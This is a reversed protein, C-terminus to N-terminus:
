KQAPIYAIGFRAQLKDTRRPWDVLLDKKIEVNPFREILDPYYSQMKVNRGDSADRSKQWIVLAGYKQVDQDSMYTARVQDGRIMVTPREPHYACIMGGLWESGVVYSFPREGSYEAWRQGAQEAIAVAPYTVRDPKEKYLPGLGTAVVYALLGLIGM